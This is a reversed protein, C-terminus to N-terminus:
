ASESPNIMAPNEEPESVETKDGGEPSPNVDGNQHDKGSPEDEKGKEKEKTEIDEPGRRMMAMQMANARERREKKKQQKKDKLDQLRKKEKLQEEVWGDVDAVAKRADNKKTLLYGQVQALAFTDEPIHDGFTEALTQIEEVTPPLDDESSSSSSSIHKDNVPVFRREFLRLFTKTIQSRTALKYEIRVDMRGARILAPDLREIHNTQLKRFRCIILFV